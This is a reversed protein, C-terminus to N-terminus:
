RLEEQIKVVSAVVIVSNDVAQFFKAHHVAFDLLSAGFQCYQSHPNYLPVVFHFQSLEENMQLAFWKTLQREDTVVVKFGELREHLGKEM